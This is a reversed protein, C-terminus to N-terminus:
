ATKKVHTSVSSLSHLSRVFLVRPPATALAVALHFFPIHGAKLLSEESTSEKAKKQKKSFPFPISNM